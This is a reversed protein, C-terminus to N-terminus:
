FYVLRRQFVDSVRTVKASDNYWGGGTGILISDSQSDTWKDAYEHVPCLKKTRQCLCVITPVYIHFSTYCVNM